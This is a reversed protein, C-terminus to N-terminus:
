GLPCIGNHQLVYPLKKAHKSSHPLFSTGGGPLRRPEQLSAPLPLWSLLFFALLPPVYLAGLPTRLAQPCFASPAPQLELPLLPCLHSPKINLARFNTKTWQFGGDKRLGGSKEKVGRNEADIKMEWQPWTVGSQDSLCQMAGWVVRGKRRWPLM